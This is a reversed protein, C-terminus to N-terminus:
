APTKTSPRRGAPTSVLERRAKADEKAKEFEPALTKLKAVLGSLDYENTTKRGRIFRQRRTILGAKELEAIHRQLQREKLGLRNSLEAKSPWPNKDPDWWFEAMVLVIALQTPSLGLRRPARLLISPIIAYGVDMVAKGWKRESRRDKAPEPAAAATETKVPHLPIVAAGSPASSSM